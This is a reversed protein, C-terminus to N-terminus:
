QGSAARRASAHEGVVGQGVAAGPDKDARESLARVARAAGDPNPAPLLRALEGAVIPAAFSTGRVAVYGGGLRAATVGAGPAAFDLHTARGAEPLVRLRADVGTVAIVGPYSAPYPPPAAPGDNGVPAVILVGRGVLSRVAAQLVINPPGVLSINIVPVQARGLWALARLIADASGGTPGQGYVDAAYIRQGRGATPAGGAGGVLLSAVATGHAAPRVGGPAFGQQRVSAGAFAPHDAAIGTDVLGVAAARPGPSGKQAGAGSGEPEGAGSYLHDYDYRGAPDRARLRAIAARTDLGGPARLVVIALDLGDLKEPESLAFGARRAIELSAPSPDLVIVAGRVVADGRDDIDLTKPNSRVLARLQAVRGAVQRGTEGISQAADTVEGPLEAVSPAGLPLGLGPGLRSGLQASAPGAVAAMCAMVGALSLLGRRIRPGTKTRHQTM